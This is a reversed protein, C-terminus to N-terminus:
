FGANQTALKNNTIENIPIPLYLDKTGVNSSATTYINITGNFVTNLPLNQQVFPGYVHSGDPKLQISGSSAESGIDKVRSILLGWRKLDQRRLYEFALERLREDQITKLFTDKDAYASPNLASFAFSATATAAVGAHTFVVSGSISTGATNVPATTNTTGATTVTYLNGNNVVQAGVIYATNATWPTGVVITPLASYGDGCTTISFGTIKGAAVVGVARSDETLYPRGAITGTRAVRTGGIFTLNPATTYGSGSTLLNIKGIGRIGRLEGYGRARVQNVADIAASTPGNVYNDAEAFMLLVDAYRLLPVNQASILLGGGTTINEYYRRWKGPERNWKTAADTFYNSPNIATAALGNSTYYFPAINWDRRLDGDAYTYYARATTREYGNTTSLLGTGASIGLRPITGERVTIDTIGVIAGIEWMSERYTNDYLDASHNIFIQQYDPNLRHLGSTMVKQAWTAAEAYRKVDNVPQGAAYLCVRALIGWVTSQAVRESYSLKDATQTALLDQATDMEKIIFDYVQISPTMPVQANALSTTSSIRLPVDGFWQTLLFYYYARLFTAEGKYHNRQDDTISTSKNINELFVNARNIADYCSAWFGLVYVSASTENYQCPYDNNTQRNNVDSEDTGLLGERYHESYMYGYYGNGGSLLPDYVGALASNLEDATNYFNATSVFSTPVTDLAKKCSFCCIIIIAIFFKINYKM